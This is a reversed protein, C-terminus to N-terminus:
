LRGLIHVKVTRRGFRMAELYTNFCLDVKNGHIAGGTDGAVANGYGEIHLHTGLPIVSPDVAVVGQRALMGIATKPGVGGGFNNPGPYYATAEMVIVKVVSRLAQEAQRLRTGIAIVRPLQKRVVIEGLKEVSVPRGDAYEARLVRDVQGPRGGSRIVRQGAFLTRDKVIQDHFPILHSEVWTRVDRRQVTIRMGPTPAALPTPYVRDAIRVQVNLLRLAEGVTSATLRAQQTVGAVSVTLALARGTAMQFGTLIATQLNPGAQERASVQVRDERLISTVIRQVSAYSGAEGDVPLCVPRGASFSWPWSVSVSSVLLGCALFAPLM